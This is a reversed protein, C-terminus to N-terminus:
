TKINNVISKMVYGASDRIAINALRDRPTESKNILILKDGHYYDILGAAPYVVLSTGAIILVDAEKIFKISQSVTHDDLTEGYLVVDPKIIGGCSDCVPVSDSEMVFKLDFHRHCSLCSNKHVTGHLELVNISGARQHLGDINQTIVAKLKGMKELEALAVHCDNPKADQFVMCNKYFKYFEDTHEYFFDRSLMYEVPYNYESKKNYLGGSSRFDPINSETSVGAGTFAVINTSKKIMDSVLEINDM